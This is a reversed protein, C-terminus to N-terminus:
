STRMCEFPRMDKASEIVTSAQVSAVMVSCFKSCFQNEETFLFCIM